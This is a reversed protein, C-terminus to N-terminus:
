GTPLGVSRASTVALRELHDARAEIVQHFHGFLEFSVAGYLSVWADVIAIAISPELTARLDAPLDPVDDLRALADARLADSLPPQGAVPVLRADRAADVVIQALVLPVRGAPGATTAPAVYGPVPSGYILAYEYQHKRAWTRVARFVAIWRGLHDHRPVRAEAKAAASGVGDYADIILATLLADRSPFYRYVASSAMGMDRTIARVSLESAGRDSLHTRAVDKIERILEDRVRERIGRTANM